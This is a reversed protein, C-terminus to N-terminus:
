QSFGEPNKMCRLTLFVFYVAWIGSSIVKVIGFMWYMVLVGFITYTVQVAIHYYIYKLITRGTGLVVEDQNSVQWM